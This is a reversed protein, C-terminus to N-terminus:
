MNLAKKELLFKKSRRTNTNVQNKAKKFLSTQESNDFIYIREEEARKM